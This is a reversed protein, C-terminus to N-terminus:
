HNFKNPMRSREVAFEHKMQLSQDETHGVTFAFNLDHFNVRVLYAFNM